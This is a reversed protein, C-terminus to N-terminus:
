IIIYCSHPVKKLTKGYINQIDQIDFRSLEFQVLNGRADLQPARYWPYMIAEQESSHPLGLSHGLEHITVSLLDTYGQQVKVGDEFAWQEDDDFHLGGHSPYFAHALVGGVFLHTLQIAKLVNCCIENSRGDFHNGDGHDGRSFGFQMDAGSQVETFNLPVVASWVDLAQRIAM